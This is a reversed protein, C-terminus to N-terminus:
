FNGRRLRDSIDVIDRESAIIENAKTLKEIAVANSKAKEGAVATAASEKRIQYILYIFAALTIVGITGVVSVVTVWEAFSMM